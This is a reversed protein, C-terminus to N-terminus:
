IDKYEGYSFVKIFLYLYFLFEFFDKEVYLSIGFGILVQFVWSFILNFQVDKVRFVYNRRFIVKFFYIRMGMSLIMENQFLLQYDLIIRLIFSEVNWIQQNVFFYILFNKIIVIIILLVLM